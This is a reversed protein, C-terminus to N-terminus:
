QLVELAMGCDMLENMIPGQEQWRASSSQTIRMIWRTGARHGDSWWQLAGAINGNDSNVPPVIPMMKMRMGEWVEYELGVIQNRGAETYGMELEWSVKVSDSQNTGGKYDTVQGLHTRPSQM